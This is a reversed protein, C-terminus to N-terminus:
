YIFRTTEQTTRWLINHFKASSESGWGKIRSKEVVNWFIDSSLGEFIYFPPM